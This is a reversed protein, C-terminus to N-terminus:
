ESVVGDKDSVRRLLFEDFSKYEKLYGMVIFDASSPKPISNHPADKWKIPSERWILTGIKLDLLGKPILLKSYVASQDVGYSRISVESLNSTITGYFLEPTSYIADMTGIEVPVQEGDVTTYVIDGKDDVEYITDSNSYVSFYM